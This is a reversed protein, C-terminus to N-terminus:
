TTRKASTTTRRPRRQTPISLGAVLAGLADRWLREADNPAIQGRLELAALGECLAHFQTAADRVTRGGLLGVDKLRAVNMQLGEFAATQANTIEEALAPSGITRQVAIKFLSPHGIAFRRFVVVGAEVLDAAPDKTTPLARISTGLMEFARVSLATLLGDKSGFLSYVARTTTGVDEAVGRVSLTDPGTSDIIREAADLLSAATREDHERPRGM